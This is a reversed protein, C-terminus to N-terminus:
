GSRQNRANFMAIVARDGHIFAEHQARRVNDAIDPRLSCYQRPQCAECQGDDIGVGFVFDPRLVDLRFKSLPDASEQDVALVTSYRGGWIQSLFRIVRVFETPTALRNVLVAVRAPRIRLTMLLQKM